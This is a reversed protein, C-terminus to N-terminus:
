LYDLPNVQTGNILIEFHLHPGTSNGTSGSYAILDGQNVYQGASVVLRSCHAYRTQRGDPHDIYVVYGYGSGWGASRVTGGSSAYIPTGLPVYWDIGKHYTSGIGGPSNRRGFYSSIRGGSIPKIYTPPIKTGREVIKPVALLLIQEKIVEKSIEKDNTYHIDLIAKRYGSSPQQLIQTQTTFWEDNDVYIVDEDYVEEVYVREVREVSLEPEPVTITLIDGVHITSNVNELKDSNLQVLTEMPINVAMSIGSLTDGSKIEYEGPTEQEKTVNDIATELDTVRSGPLYGQSIEVDEIFDMALVGLEFDEFDMGDEDVVDSLGWNEIYESIGAVPLKFAEKDEEESDAYTDIIKPTIVSFDRDNSNSLEVVFRGSDDYRDLAAQLLKRADQLNRLTVMYEEIKVTCSRQINEDVTHSLISQMKEMVERDSNVKGFLLEEGKVELDGTMFMLSTSRSAVRRRSEILLHEARSGDDITGVYEGNLFINFTNDGTHEFRPLGRMFFICLFLALISAFVFGLEIRKHTRRIKRKM